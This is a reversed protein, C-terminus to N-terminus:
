VTTKPVRYETGSDYGSTYPGYTIIPYWPSSPYPYPCYEKKREELVKIKELLELYEQTLAIKEKLEEIESM